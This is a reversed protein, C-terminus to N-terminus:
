SGRDHEPEEDEDMFATMEWRCTSEAHADGLEHDAQGTRVDPNLTALGLEADRGNRQPTVRTHAAHLGALHARMQLRDHGTHVRTARRQHFVDRVVAADRNVVGVLRELLM